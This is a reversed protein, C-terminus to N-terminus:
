HQHGFDLVEPEPPKASVRFALQSWLGLWILLALQAELVKWLGTPPAASASLERAAAGPGGTRPQASQRAPLAATTGRESRQAQPARKRAVVM